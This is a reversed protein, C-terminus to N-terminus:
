NKPEPSQMRSLVVALNNRANAFDPRLRLAEQYCFAADRNDGTEARVNGLNFYAEPFDPKLRLAIRLEQAAEDLQGAQTLALGLNCHTMATGPQWHLATRYHAIADATRGQRLLLNGLDNQAEVLDPRLRVATEFHALAAESRGLRDQADALNTQAQAFAPELRVAEAYQTEAEETRGEDALVHGLNFHADANGPRRLATDSWLLLDSQYVQNRRGTVGAYVAALTVTGALFAGRPVNRCACVLLVIVAALPLYMRHEAMVETAVPVVSSSPALILFFCAGLFGVPAARRLAVLTGVLLCTVLAASLATSVPDLALTRGYNFILPHPWISLRLYHAIAPFQALAYRWWEVGSNFGATRGRGGTALALVGLILWTSGLGLHLARHQRWSRKFDGSVFTRDYLLVILPASVMVEKSAMGAACAGFAVAAWLARGGRGPGHSPCQAYRIFAYLTVLYFLGVLSEARQVIYTVSETQVPHLAWLLAASFGVLLPTLQSKPMPTRRIIGFLALAACLHIALNLAHYGAVQSGGLAYNFALSLGVIPRGSTTLGEAGRWASAFGRIAPNDRITPVDDFVFPGHFSNAYAALTAGVILAGGLIVAGRELGTRNVEATM